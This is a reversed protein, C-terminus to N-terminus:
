ARYVLTPRMYKANVSAIGIDNAGSGSFEQNAATLVASIALSLILTLLLAHRTLDNHATYCWSLM